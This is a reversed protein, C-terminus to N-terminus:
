GPQDPPALLDLARLMRQQERRFRAMIEADTADPRVSNRFIRPGIVAGTILFTCFVEADVGSDAADHRVGEVLADWHPYNERIDTGSVFDEIWLKVLEPNELVFRSIHDIREAQSAPGSFAEAIQESSWHRAARLLEERTKFHYYVSTRDIGAARALAAISLADAGKESILKLATEILARHTEDYGRNRKRNSSTGTM